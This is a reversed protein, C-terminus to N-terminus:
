VYLRAAGWALGEPAFGPSPLTKLVKGSKPDMRVLEQARWDALWLAEGDWTLGSSHGGPTPHTNLVHRSGAFASSWLLGCVLLAMSFKRGM